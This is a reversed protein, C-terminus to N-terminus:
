EDSSRSRGAISFLYLIAAFVAGFVAVFVVGMVFLTAEQVLSTLIQEGFLFGFWFLTTVTLAIGIGVAALPKEDRIKLACYTAPLGTVAPTFLFGLMAVIAGGWEYVELPRGGDDPLTEAEATANEAM